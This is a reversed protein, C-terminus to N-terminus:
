VCPYMCLCLCAVRVYDLNTKRQEAFEQGRTCATSERHHHIKHTVLGQMSEREKEEQM